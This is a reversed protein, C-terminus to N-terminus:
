KGLEKIWKTMRKKLKEGTIFSGNEAEKIVNVFEEQTMSEGPTKTSIKNKANISKM